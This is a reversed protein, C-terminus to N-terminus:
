VTRGDEALVPQFGTDEFLNRVVAMPNTPRGSGRVPHAPRISPIIQSAWSRGADMAANPRGSRVLETALLGALARYASAEEVAEAPVASYLSAPRGPGSHSPDRAARIAGGDLLHTLHFRVTNASLGTADMLDAVGLPVASARLLGLERDRSSTPTPLPTPSV